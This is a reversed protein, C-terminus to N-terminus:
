SSYSSGYWLSLFNLGWFSLRTYQATTTDTFTTATASSATAIAAAASAKGKTTATKTKTSTPTSSPGLQLAMMYAGRHNERAADRPQKASTISTQQYHKTQKNTSFHL